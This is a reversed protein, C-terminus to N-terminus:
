PITNNVFSLIGVFCQCQSFRHIHSRAHLSRAQFIKANESELVAIEKMPVESVKDWFCLIKLDWVLIQMIGSIM